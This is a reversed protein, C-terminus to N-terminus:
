PSCPKEETLPPTRRVFRECRGWRSVFFHGVQCLLAPRGDFLATCSHTCLQCQEAHVGDGAIYGQAIKSVRVSGM